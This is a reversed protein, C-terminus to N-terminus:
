LIYTKPAPTNDTDVIAEYVISIALFEGNLPCHDPKRCNCPRSQDNSEHEAGSVRTNHRKTITGMNPMCSYSVKVTSRNFIKHLKSGM